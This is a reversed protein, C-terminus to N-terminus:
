RLLHGRGALRIAEHADERGYDAMIARRERDYEERTIRGADYEERLAALERDTTPM